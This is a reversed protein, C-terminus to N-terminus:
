CIIIIVGTLLSVLVFCHCNFCYMLFAFWTSSMFMQLDSSTWLVKEFTAFVWVEALFTKTLFTKVGAGEQRDEDKSGEEKIIM